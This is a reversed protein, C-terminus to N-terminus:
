GLVHGLAREIAGGVSPTLEQEMRALIHHARLGRRAIARAITFAIGRAQAPSIAGSVKAAGKQDPGYQRGIGKRLVWEAILQLPPMRSGARRGEEIIAWYPSSNYVAVGNPIDDVHFERRSKGRDVPQPNEGSILRQLIPEARMKCEVRIAEVVSEFMTNSDDELSMVLEDPSVVFTPV